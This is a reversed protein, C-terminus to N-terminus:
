VENMMPDGGYEDRLDLYVWGDTSSGSASEKGEEDEEDEELECISRV